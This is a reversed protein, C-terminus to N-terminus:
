LILLKLEFMHTKTQKQQEKRARLLFKLRICSGQFGEFIYIYDYYYVLQLRELEYKTHM